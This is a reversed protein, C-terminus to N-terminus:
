QPAAAAAPGGAEIAAAKLASHEAERARAHPRNRVERAELGRHGGHHFSAKNKDKGKKRKGQENVTRARRPRQSRRPSLNRTDGLRRGEFNSM